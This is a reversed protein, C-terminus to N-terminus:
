ENGELKEQERKQRRKELVRDLADMNRSLPGQLELKVVPVESAELDFSTISIADRAYGPDLHRPLPLETKEEPFTGMLREQYASGPQQERWAKQEAVTWAPAEPWTADCHFTGHLHEVVRVKWGKAALEAALKEAMQKLREKQEDSFFMKPNFAPQRKEWEQRREPHAWVPAPLGTVPDPEVCMSGGASLCKPCDVGLAGKAPFTEEDAM